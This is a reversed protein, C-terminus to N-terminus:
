KEPTGLPEYHAICGQNTGGSSNWAYFSEEFQPSTSPSGSIDPHDLFFGADALCSFETSSNAAAQYRTTRCLHWSLPFLPFPLCWLLLRCHHLIRCAGPKIRQM